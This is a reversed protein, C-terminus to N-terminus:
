RYSNLLNMRLKAHNKLKRDNISGVSPRIRRFIVWLLSIERTLLDGRELVLFSRM